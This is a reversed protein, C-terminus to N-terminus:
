KLTIFCLINLTVDQALKRASLANKGLDNLEMTKRHKQVFLDLCVSYVLATQDLYESNANRDPSMVRCSFRM